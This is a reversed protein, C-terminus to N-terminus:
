RRVTGDSTLWALVHPNQQVVFLLPSTMSTILEEEREDEPFHRHTHNLGATAWTAHLVEHLLIQQYHAEPTSPDMLRMQIRRGIHETLGCWNDDNESKLWEGDTLWEVAYTDPGVFVHDPRPAHKPTAM